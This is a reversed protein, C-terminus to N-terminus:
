GKLYDAAGKLTDYLGGTGGGVAMLGAVAVISLLAALLGYEVLTQGAEAVSLNESLWFRLAAIVRWRKSTRRTYESRCEAPRREILLPPAGFFSAL